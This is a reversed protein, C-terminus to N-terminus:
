NFFKLYQKLEDNFKRRDRIHTNLWKDYSGVKSKYENMFQKVEDQAGIENTLYIIGHQLIYKALQDLYSENEEIWEKMKFMQILRDIHDEPDNIVKRLSEIDATIGNGYEFWNQCKVFHKSVLGGILSYPIVYNPSPLCDDIEEQRVFGAGTFSVCIMIPTYRNGIHMGLLAHGAEHYAAIKLKRQEAKNM